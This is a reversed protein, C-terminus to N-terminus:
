AAGWLILRGINGVRRARGQIRLDHLSRRATDPTTSCAHAVQKAHVPGPKQAQLYAAVRAIVTM